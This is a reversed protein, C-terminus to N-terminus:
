RIFVRYDALWTNVDLLYGLKMENRWDTARGALLHRIAAADVLPLIPSTPDTIVAHLRERVTAQWASMAHSSPYGSKARWTVQEPLLDAVAHRLLGKAHGGLRRTGAPVNYVYALLRHDLFPVRTEVGSAMALRDARDLLFRLYHTITLHIAQRRWRLISPEGQVRPVVRLADARKQAEYDRPRMTADAERSLVDVPSGFTRSWPWGLPKIDAVDDHWGYGSFVEDAGEGSLVVPATGSVERFLLYLSVNVNTPGPLDLAHLTAREAAVLDEASVQVTHHASGIHAAAADAYPADRDVHILSPGSASGGLYDITFSHLKGQGNAAFEAAALAAIASSDVGGSLLAAVPRDAVLHSRVLEQLRFRVTAVSTEADDTHEHPELAWYRSTNIGNHDMVALHAPELEHIGRFVASGPSRCPFMAFLENLGDADVQPSIEPHALLGKIESAFALGAAVPAFFLPKIGLRDRALVLRGNQPDWIALAFMGELHDVFATGWRLYAALVVETDSRTRFPPVHPRLQERLDDANYLEGNYVITAKLRHALPSLILPRGSPPTRHLPMRSMPQAGGDADIIALRRQGLLVHTDVFTGHGDPGRHSQVSTMLSIVDTRNTLDRTLDVWGAIGCM